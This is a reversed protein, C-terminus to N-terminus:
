PTRSRGRRQQRAAAAAPPADCADGKVFDTGLEAALGGIIFLKESTCPDCNSGPDPDPDLDPDPDHDSNPHSLLHLAVFSDSTYRELSESGVSDAAPQLHQCPLHFTCTLSGRFRSLACPWIGQRALNM